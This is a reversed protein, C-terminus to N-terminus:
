KIENKYEKEYKHFKDVLENGLSDLKNFYMNQIYFKELDDHLAKNNKLISLAKEVMSYFLTKNYEIENSVSNLYKTNCLEEMYIENGKIQKKNIENSTVIATSLEPIFLHEIRESIFPDHFVEVYLGRKLSEELIYKLTESKGFGPGGNIVYVNEYGNTLSEIYTVIGQPTIGTAFLHRDKGLVGIDTGKLVKSKLDEKFTLLKNSDMSQLNFSSWDEHIEKASRLYRYIRKYNESLTKAIDMIEVKHNKIGDENWCQGLNLIEDVAGPTIPDVMHPSTGDLVAIKLEKILIADLSESDSSCHHHEINYGNSYFYASLKKMISSKGTGPGGKLCVIRRAEDQPLIYRFFSYFGMSTNAGPFMHRIYNNM